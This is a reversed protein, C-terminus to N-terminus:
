GETIQGYPTEPLDRCWFLSGVLVAGQQVQSGIGSPTESVKMKCTHLKLGSVHLVSDLGWLSALACAWTQRGGTM